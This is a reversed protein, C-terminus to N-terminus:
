WDTWFLIRDSLILVFSYFLIKEGAVVERYNKGDYDCSVIYKVKVDVWYIKNDVYDIILGNFWYINKDIIIFRIKRDGDMGVREIKLVEGWDTWFMWRFFM